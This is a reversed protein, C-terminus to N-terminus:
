ALRDLIAKVVVKKTKLKQGRVVKGLLRVLEQGMRYLPHGLTPIPFAGARPTDRYGVLVIDKGPKLGRDTVANVAGEIANDGFLIVADPRRRMALLQATLREATARTYDTRLIYRDQVRCFEVGM